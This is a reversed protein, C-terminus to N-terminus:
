KTKMVWVGDWEKEPAHKKFYECREVFAKSPGDEPRIKLVSNFEHLAKDWQQKLYEELGKEFHEIVKYYWDLADEKKSVLEYITIPEKKGKVMVRDLKRVLFPKKEVASKTTESIIIRTGYQKNLGELRSGLNVTDGMATYDFREYSGMNGVVAPGTNIGVGIELPPVGRANWEKQLQKLKKEMELATSCTLEAHRPQDLPANWFAMIADGMYKDVVGNHKLIINTMETLYENLLKVLEEPSLKESITTFGRIDSFFITITRREGGLKLKEPDDLIEKVVEKSVYKEFAGVVKKRSKKESLYYYTMSSVYTAVIAVPIYVLNLIIGANFAFIAAFFYIIMLAACIITALWIPLYYITLAVTVAALFIMTITLTDSAQEISKGTIMQQIINAHIEVGPMAKGYSIPVFYDDHLDAATAGILLIKDKFEEKEYKGRMVDSFPYYKYTGPPGIFNILYRSKKEVPRRIYQKLVAYAFPEYSGQIDLNVARTIGDKDTIINIYGLETCARYIEEIPEVPEKGAVKGDEMEFKTYEAPMVVKGAQKIADALAKDTEKNSAEFFAVDFGIVKAQELEGVLTTFNGREWPWRGIEQISKDDIAVIAINDLPANGGYLFDSLKLQINSYFGTSFVLAILLATLIAIGVSTMLQTRKIKALGAINLNFFSKKM